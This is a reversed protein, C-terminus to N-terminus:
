RALMTSNLYSTCQNGDGAEGILNNDSAFTTNYPQALGQLTVGPSDTTLHRVLHGAIGGPCCRCRLPSPVGAWHLRLSLRSGNGSTLDDHCAGEVFHIRDPIAL